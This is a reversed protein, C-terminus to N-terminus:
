AGGGVIAKGEASKVGEAGCVAPGLGEVPAVLGIAGEDFDPENLEEAAEEGEGEGGRGVEEVGEGDTIGEGADAPRVVVVVGSRCVFGGRGGKGERVL